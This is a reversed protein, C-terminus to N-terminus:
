VCVRSRGPLAIAHSAIPDGIGTAGDITVQAALETPEQSLYKLSMHADPPM